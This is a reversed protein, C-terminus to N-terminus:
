VQTRLLEQVGDVVHNRVAMALELALSAKQISVMAEHLRSLDGSAVSQMAVDAATQLQALSSVSNKLATAFGDQGAGGASETPRVPAGASAPISIRM